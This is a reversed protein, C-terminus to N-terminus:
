SFLRGIARSLNDSRNDARLISLVHPRLQPIAVLDAFISAFLGDIQHNNAACDLFKFLRERDIFVEWCRGALTLLLDAEHRYECGLLTDISQAVLGQAKSGSIARLNCILTDLQQQEISTNIARQLQESFATDIEVHELMASLPQKVELPLSPWITQLNINNQGHELRYAFDALGQIALSQWANSPLKGAFYLESYEYYQSAPRNLEKKLLANFAALKNANPTFVYPNNDLKGDAHEGTLETGLAELVMSAFHDRSAVILKSQEDLPFKLFWVYPDVTAQNDWFQIAILAHSGLPYPYPTQTAEIQAFQQKDIKTIRRGIDYVRWQTGATSLLEGLTSIQTTM